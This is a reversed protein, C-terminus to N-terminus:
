IQDDLDMRGVIRNDGGAYRVSGSFITAYPYDALVEQRDPLLPKDTPTLSAIKRPAPDRGQAVLLRTGRRQLYGQPSFNLKGRASLTGNTADVAFQYTGQSPFLGASFRAQGNDIVIGSRIPWSSIMRENGPIRRSTPAAKFKWRLKGTRLDLCYAFGDDSGFYVRQQDITPALRM